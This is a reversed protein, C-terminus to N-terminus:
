WNYNDNSQMCKLNFSIVFSNTKKLNEGFFALIQNWEGRTSFFDCFELVDNSEIFIFFKNGNIWEFLFFITKLSLLFSVHAWHEHQACAWSELTNWKWEMRIAQECHKSPWYSHNNSKTITTPTAHRVVVVVAFFAALMFDYTVIQYHYSILIFRTSYRHIRPLLNLQANDANNSM